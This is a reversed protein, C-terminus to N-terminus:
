GTSSVVIVVGGLQKQDFTGGIINEPVAAIGYGGDGLRIDRLQFRNAARSVGDGPQYVAKTAAPSSACSAAM